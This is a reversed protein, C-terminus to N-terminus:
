ISEVVSSFDVHEREWKRTKDMEKLMEKNDAGNPFMAIIEDSSYGRKELAEISDAYWILFCYICLMGM